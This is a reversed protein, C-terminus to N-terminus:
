LRKQIVLVDINGKVIISEDVASIETSKETEIEFPPQYFGALDLLPSLVVMKVAEESMPRRQTLNLSNSKVRELSLNEADNLSLLDNTWETFFDANTVLQLGFKEELEYLSIDWSQITQVMILQPILFVDTNYIIVLFKDTIAYGKPSTFWTFRIQLSETIEQYRTTM